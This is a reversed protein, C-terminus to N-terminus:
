CSVYSHTSCKQYLPTKLSAKQINEPPCVLWILVFVSVEFALLLCNSILMLIIILNFIECDNMNQPSTVDKYKSISAKM